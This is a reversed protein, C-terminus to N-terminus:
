LLMTAELRAATTLALLAQDRSRRVEIRGKVKGPLRAEFAHRGSGLGAKILDGRRRNAPLRLIRAGDVLVDLCVAEEPRSRDQAWGRISTPAVSDVFGRLPGPEQHDPRAVGAREDIRQRIAQLVFGDELLPMCPRGPKFDPYRQRFDAANGFLRRCGNDFFSEAKAGEAVIVDHDDLEIHVYTLARVAKAQVISVGNILLRAQVLAGDVLMAHGPSVLLDRRPLGSGLAGAKICVPLVDVNGGIRQADYRTHGVWKVPRVRGSATILGDGIALQEVPREGREIAIM